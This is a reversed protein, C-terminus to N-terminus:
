QSLTRQHDLLLWANIAPCSFTLFISCFCWHGPTTLRCVEAQSNCVVVAGGLQHFVSFKSKWFWFVKFTVMRENLYNKTLQHLTNLCIRTMVGCQTREKVWFGQMHRWKCVDSSYLHSSVVSAIPLLEMVKWSWCWSCDNLWDTVNRTILALWLLSRTSLEKHSSDKNASSSRMSQGKYCVVAKTRWPNDSLWHWLVLPGMVRCCRNAEDSSDRRVPALLNVYVSM